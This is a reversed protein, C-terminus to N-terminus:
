YDFFDEFINREEDSDDIPEQIQRRDVKLLNEPAVDMDTTIPLLQDDKCYWGWEEARLKIDDDLVKWLVIQLHVRLGHYYVSRETPPMKAPDFSGKCVMDLYKKYRLKKLTDDNKKGGYMLTFARVAAKGVEPQNAWVNNMTDSIERLEESKQVLNLFSSKGKGFPASTTDCGSMAHIFLFHEREVDLRLAASKMNWACNMRQQFFIPDGMESQWHYLLMIVIDTDDAVVVVPYRGTCFDLATSVIKTDADGVCNIVTQSDDRLFTSILKIIQDKNGENSLFREQPFHIKNSEIIEIDPCRAGNGARRKHECSKTSLEQYGDFVVTAKGYHKRIYAVYLRGIDSFTMGNIWCVRHLLAGGDVVFMCEDKLTDICIVDEEKLLAKRLAPKDPKRMMGNKFLAMPETTLEYEFYQEEDEERKAVAALRTFLVTANVYVQDDNIKVTNQFKDLPKIQNKRKISANALSMNDLEKQIMWGLEEARERNVSDKGIVSVIGGRSKVSQMLTQEIVLDTWLGAWNHNRRRVAHEGEMFKDHLWPHKYELEKMQRAEQLSNLTAIDTADGISELLNKLSDVGIEFDDKAIEFLLCKLASEVLFHARLARSVAKGSIIHEVSNEAYVEAFLEEIGSGKMMKGISGLFSVVTQFGGLRAVINLGAEAIIGVAKYWLPQDFTIIVDQMFGSWNPTVNSSSKIFRTSHWLFNYRWEPPLIYPSKLQMIPKLKFNLHGKKSSGLYNLVRIGYEEVFSTTPQRKNLRNIVHIRRREEAYSTMSIIGMGHFTGKGTLAIINDDVNNELFRTDMGNGSRFKIDETTPYLSNSKSLERMEGKVIKAAATIIDEKTEEQKNKKEKIVYNAMEKFCVVDALFCHEKWNFVNDISSRLKKTVTTEESQVNERKDTFKRRCDFHVLIQKGAEVVEQLETELKFMDREKSVRLLTEYGKKKVVTPTTTFKEKCLICIENAASSTM